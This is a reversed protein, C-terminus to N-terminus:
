EEAEESTAPETSPSTKEKTDTFLAAGKPFEGDVYREKLLEIRSKLGAGSRGVADAVCNLNGNSLGMKQLVTYMVCGAVMSIAINATASDVSPEGIGSMAEFFAEMVADMQSPTLKKALADNLNSVAKDMDDERAAAAHLQQPHPAWGQRIRAKYHQQIIKKANVLQKQTIGYTQMLQKENITITRFWRSAISAITLAMIQLNEVDTSGRLEPHQEGGARCIATKPCKLMRRENANLTRRRAEQGPTLKRATARALPEVVHALDEGFMEQITAMLSQYMPDTDRQSSRDLQALRRARRRQSTNLRNGNADTRDGWVNMRGGHRAGATAANRNVAENHRGEGLSSGSNTDADVCVHEHVLCCDECVGEARAVDIKLKGGCDDCRQEM